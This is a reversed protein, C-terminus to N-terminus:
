PDQNPFALSGLTVEAKKTELLFLFCSLFLAAMVAIVGFVSGWVTIPILSGVVPPAGM